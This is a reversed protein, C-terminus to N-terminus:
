AQGGIQAAAIQELARYDIKGIKTRPLDQVVIIQAPVMYVPLNERCICYLEEQILANEATKVFAIPIHIRQHDPKGVAACAEVMPHRLLVNEIRDPFMKTPQGDPGATVLIRKMRGVIYILGDESVYGIDGTHLWRKGDAHTHILEETADSNNLYKSMISPSCFCIEGNQEYPLEEQTGIDIVKVNNKVLPIGVSGPANCTEYTIAACSVMESCGYGKNIRCRTGHRQLLENLQQELKVSLSDGGSAIYRLFSLDQKAPINLFDEMYQPISNMHQPRYKRLYQGIKAPEYKPLLIACMGLALPELMGNCLAYGIFPPLVSLMRDTKSYVMTNKVEWLIANINLNSLVVGKPTGTTGGTHIIIAPENQLDADQAKQRYSCIQGLSLFNKWNIASPGLVTAPNKLKYLSRLIPPMSDSASVIIMQSIESLSVGGRVIEYTQDLVVVYKSSVEAFLSLLESKGALPHLMNAIAGLRNLAYVVYLAEPISPLCVSITDGKQVGLQYFAKETKEIQLFLERYSIRRGLYILATASENGINNSFMYSYISGTPLQGNIAEESYYKLWPKDISPYGTLKKEGM